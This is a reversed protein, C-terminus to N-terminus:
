CKLPPDVINTTWECELAVGPEDKMVRRSELSPALLFELSHHSENFLARLGLFNIVLDVDDPVTKIANRSTRWTFQWHVWTRSQVPHIAGVAAMPLSTRWRPDHKSHYTWGSHRFKRDSVSLYLEPQPSRWSIQHDWWVPRRYVFLCLLSYWSHKPYRPSSIWAAEWHSCMGDEHKHASQLYTMTMWCSIKSNIGYGAIWLSSPLWWSCTPSSILCVAADILLRASFISNM